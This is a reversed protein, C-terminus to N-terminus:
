APKTWRSEARRALYAARRKVSMTMGRGHLLVRRRERNIYDRVLQQVDDHLLEVHMHDGSLEVGHANQTLFVTKLGILSEALGSDDTIFVVPPRTHRALASQAMLAPLRTYMLDWTAGWIAERPDGTRDLKLLRRARAPLEKKGGLLQFGIWAERSASVQLEREMWFRFKEVREVRTLDVEAHIAAATILASYSVMFWSHLYDFSDSAAEDKSEIVLGGSEGGDLLHLLYDRADSLYVQAASARGLYRVINAPRPARRTEPEAASMGGVVWASEPMTLALNRLRSKEVSSLNLPAFAAQRRHIHEIRASINWDMVVTGASALGDSPFQLYHDRM